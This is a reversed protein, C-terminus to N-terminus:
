GPRTYGSPGLGYYEAVAGSPTIRGINGMNEEVFWLNGDPGPTIHGLGSGATPVPFETISGTTSIRRIKDYASDTFWLNGDPGATIYRPRAGIDQM